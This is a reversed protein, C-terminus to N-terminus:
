QLAYVVGDLTAVYVHGNSVVPTAHIAGGATFQWRLTGDRADLATLTQDYSAVYLVEGAVVPSASLAQQATFTWRLTGTYLELAMLTGRQSAVYVLDHAVAASAIIPAHVRYQWRFGPLYPPPGTFGWVFLTIRVWRWAYTWRPGLTYADIARFWGDEGGFLILGAAIAPTARIAQSTRYRWRPVGSRRDIFYLAGDNSGV